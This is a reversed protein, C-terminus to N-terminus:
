ETIAGWPYTHYTHIIAGRQISPILAGVGTNRGRSDWSCLLRTPELGHPRSSGSVVSPCLKLAKPPFQGIGTLIGGFHLCATELIIICTLQFKKGDGSYIYFFLPRQMNYVQPSSTLSFVGLSPYCWHGNVRSSCRSSNYRLEGGLVKREGLCITHWTIRHAERPACKHVSTTTISKAATTSPQQFNTKPNQSM